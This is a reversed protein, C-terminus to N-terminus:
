QGAGCLLVQPTFVPRDRDLILLTYPGAPLSGTQLQHDAGPQLAIVREMALRGHADMLRVVFERAPIEGSPRLTILDRFPNPFVRLQWLNEPIDTSVPDGAFTQHFGQTLLLTDQVQSSVVVEGLTYSLRYDASGAQDGAAGIVMPALSQAGLLSPMLWLFGALCSLFLSQSWTMGQRLLFWDLESIVLM